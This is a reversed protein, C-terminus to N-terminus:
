VDAEPAAAHQLRVTEGLFGYSAIETLFNRFAAGNNVCAGNGWAIIPLKQGQLRTLEKPRYVTHTPLGPDQEMVAPFPGTGQAWACATLCVLAFVTKM